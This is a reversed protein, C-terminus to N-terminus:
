AFARGSEELDRYKIYDSYQVNCLSSLKDGWFM